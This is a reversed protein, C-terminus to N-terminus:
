DVIKHQDKKWAPRCSLFLRMNGEWFYKEGAEILVVDGASLKHEEHNIVIKGEGEFIYALEDCQQNVVQREDPYRGAITAIAADLMANNLDHETVTCAASNAKEVAQHKFSIKM